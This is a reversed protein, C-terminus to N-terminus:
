RLSHEEIGPSPSFKDGLEVSPDIGPPKGRQCLDCIVPDRAAHRVWQMRLCGERNCRYGFRFGTEEPPTSGRPRDAM